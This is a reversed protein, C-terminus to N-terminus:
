LQQLFNELEIDTDNNQYIVSTFTKPIAAFGIYAGWLMFAYEKNQYKRNLMFREIQEFGQAKIFFSMIAQLVPLNAPISFSDTEQKKYRWYGGLTILIQKGEETNSLETNKFIKATALILNLIDVESVIRISNLSHELIYQFVINLYAIEVKNENDSIIYLSKNDLVQIKSLDITHSGETKNVKKILENVGDSLRIFMAGITSDYETTGYRYNAIYEEIEKIERRLAKYEKNDEEFDSLIKKLELKRKYELTDKPFYERKKGKKRGKEVEQQKIFKLENILCTLHYDDELKYLINSCEERKQKLERLEQEYAPTKQRKLEQSRMSALNVVEKFVQCLIDFLNTAELNQKKYESKCQAIKQMISMDHIAGEGIMLETNLGTFSNKLDIIHILLGQRESNMSTLQGRVYGIIAGKIFNYTKDFTIYQQKEFLLIDSSNERIKKKEKNDLYFSDLYKEVCKVELLIKSEAIFATHKDKDSFRFRVSGKKYYITKPYTFVTKKRGIHVLLSDDLLDDSIEVAYDGAPEITSLILHNIKESGAKFFRSLNNGFNREQYFSYPSISETVFSEMLNWSDIILWYKM